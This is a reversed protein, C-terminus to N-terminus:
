LISGKQAIWYFLGNRVLVAHSKTNNNWYIDGTYGSLVSSNVTYYNKLAPLNSASYVSSSGNYITASTIDGAINVTSDALSLAKNWLDVSTYDSINQVDVISITSSSQYIVLSYFVDAMVPDKIYVVLQESGNVILATDKYKADLSTKVTSYSQGIYSSFTALDLGPMYAKNTNDTTTGSSSNDYSDNQKMCSVM